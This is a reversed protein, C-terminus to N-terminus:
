WLLSKNTNDRGFLINDRGFAYRELLYQGFLYNNSMSDFM